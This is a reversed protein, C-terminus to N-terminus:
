LLIVDNIGGMEALKKMIDDNLKDKDAFGTQKRNRFFHYLFILVLSILIVPVKFNFYSSEEGATLKVSPNVVEFLYLYNKDNFLMLYNNPQTRLHVINGESYENFALTKAKFMSVKDIETTDIFVLRNKHKIILDKRVLQMSFGKRHNDLVGLHDKFDQSRLVLCENQKNSFSIMLLKSDNLLVYIVQNFADYLINAIYGNQSYTALNCEYTEESRELSIIKIRNNDEVYAIFNLFISYLFNESVKNNYSDFNYKNPKLQEDLAFITSDVHTLMMLKNGKTIYLRVSQIDKDSVYEEVKDFHFEQRKIQNRYSLSLEYTNQNEKYTKIVIKQAEDTHGGEYDVDIRTKNDKDLKRFLIHYKIITRKDSKMVFFSADLIIYIKGDNNIFSFIDGIVYDVSFEKFLNGYNDILRLTNNYALLILSHIYHGNDHKALPKISILQYSKVGESNFQNLLILRNDIDYAGESHGLISEIDENVYYFKETSNGGINKYDNSNVLNDYSQTLNLLESTLITKGTNGLINLPVILLLILVYVAM